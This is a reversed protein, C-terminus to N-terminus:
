KGAPVSNDIVKQTMSVTGTGITENFLKLARKYFDAVNEPKNYGHGEDKYVHYEYKVGAKDMAKTMADGHVLPVRQDDSGMTLLIRGKIKDANRAPSTKEFQAADRKSDGVWKTWTTELYDSFQSTDSGAYNQWIGLDTVAVYANSCKFLEPEKVMGQLAAYGGYSAGYLCMRDKNVIGENVLHLAGDTLDDQMALGFQKFGAEYHERGFGKSARPEPEIVVYGRSAFFQAIPRGWGSGYSYARVWPGGHIHVILPLNKGSSAKPITVYAPIMRGDRAKYQIFKRPSMWEPKFTPRTSVIPELTKATRNFLSYKPAIVDSYSTVLITEDNDRGFSMTNVTDKLTSDLMRQAAALEEDFWKQVPMGASYQIGVLKKKKASFILGGEIDVLPDEAILEGLKKNAFDWKYVARKDRGINSAVYLNGDWDFQLPEVSPEDSKYQAIKEFKADPGSRMWLSSGDASKEENRVAVRPVNNRDLVWQGVRGPTEFTVLQSKGTYTDVQFIDQSDRTRGRQGALVKGPESDIIRFLTLGKDTFERLNKGDADICFRGRLRLTGLPERGDATSFCLRNDSIWSPSVADINQFATIVNNKRAQLDVVVLNQRGKFPTSAALLKGSPSLLMDQFEAQKFFDEVSIDAASNQAYSTVALSLAAGTFVAGFVQRLRAFSKSM